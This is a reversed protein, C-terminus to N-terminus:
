VIAAVKIEANPIGLTEGIGALLSFLNMTFPNFFSANTCDAILFVDGPDAPM